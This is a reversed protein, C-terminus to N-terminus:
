TNNPKLFYCYDKYWDSEKDIDLQSRETSMSSSSKTLEQGDFLIRSRIVKNILKEGLVKKYSLFAIIHKFEEYGGIWNFKKVYEVEQDYLSELAEISPKNAFKHKIFKFFSRLQQKKENREKESDGDKGIMFHYKKQEDKLIM